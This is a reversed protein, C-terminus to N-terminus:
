LPKIYASKLRVISEFMGKAASFIPAPYSVYSAGADPRSFMAHAGAIEFSIEYKKM